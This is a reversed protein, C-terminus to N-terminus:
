SLKKQTDQKKKYDKLKWWERDGYVYEAEDIANEIQEQTQDENM